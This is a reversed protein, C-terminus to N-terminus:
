IKDIRTNVVFYANFYAKPRNLFFRSFEMWIFNRLKIEKRHPDKKRKDLTMWM